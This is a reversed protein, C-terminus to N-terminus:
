FLIITVLSVFELKSHAQLYNLITNIGYVALNHRSFQENQINEGFNAGTVPRRMSLSVDLVIVTPM